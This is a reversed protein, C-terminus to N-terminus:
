EATCKWSASSSYYVCGISPTSKTFQYSLTFNGPSAGYNLNAEYFLEPYQDLFTPDIKEVYPPYSGHMLYYNNLEQIIENADTRIENHQMPIIVYTQTFIGMGILLFSIAAILAIKKWDTTFRMYEFETHETQLITRNINYPVATSIQKQTKRNNHLYALAPKRM